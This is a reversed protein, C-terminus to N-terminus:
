RGITEEGGRKENESRAGQASNGGGGQAMLRVGEEAIKRAL